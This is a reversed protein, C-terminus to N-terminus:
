GSIEAACQSKRLVRSNTGDEELTGFRVSLAPIYTSETWDATQQIPAADRDGFGEKGSEPEPNERDDLRKLKPHIHGSCGYAISDSATYRDSRDGNRAPFKHAVKEAGFYLTIDFEFFSPDIQFGAPHDPVTKTDEARQKSSKAAPLFPLVTKRRDLVAMTLFISM